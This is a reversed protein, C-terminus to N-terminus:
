RKAVFASFFFKKTDGFLDLGGNGIEGKFLVAVFSQKGVVPTPQPAFPTRSQRQIKQRLTVGNQRADRRFLTRLDDQFRRLGKDIAFVPQDSQQIRGLRSLIIEAVEGRIGRPHPFVSTLVRVGRHPIQKSQRFDTSLVVGVVQKLPKIGDFFATIFAFVPLIHRFRENQRSVDVGVLLIVSLRPPGPVGAARSPRIAQDRFPEEAQAAPSVFQRDVRFEGLSQVVLIHTLAIVGRHEIAKICVLGHQSDSRHVHQQM